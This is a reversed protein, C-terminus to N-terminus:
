KNNPMERKEFHHKQLLKDSKKNAKLNIFYVNLSKM